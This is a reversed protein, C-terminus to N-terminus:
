ISSSIPYLTYKHFDCPDRNSLSNISSTYYYNLSKFRIEDRRTLSFGYKPSEHLHNLLGLRDNDKTEIPSCYVHPDRSYWM